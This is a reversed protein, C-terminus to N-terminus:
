ASWTELQTLRISIDHSHRGAPMTEAVEPSTHLLCIGAPNPSSCASPCTVAVDDDFAPINVCVAKAIFEHAPRNREAQLNVMEAIVRRTNARLMEPCDGISLVHRTGMWTCEIGGLCM